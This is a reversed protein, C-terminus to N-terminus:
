AFRRCMVQHVNNSGCFIPEATVVADATAGDAAPIAWGQQILVFGGARLGPFNTLFGSPEKYENKHNETM